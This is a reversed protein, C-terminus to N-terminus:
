GFSVYKYPRNDLLTPHWGEVREDLLYTRTYWYIPVVPLEELLITEAQRLLQLRKEPDSAQAEQILSDYTSNSWGTDNNGNGTTFIELFTMAHPYDGIWGARSIDYDLNSQSDLYVKWEQNYIGVDIGLNQRWMAQIAEAVKRHAESTNILIESKPFGRGGPYGAEALLQRAREPNFRVRDLPPYDDLGNPTFGTAPAQGGQTVRDVLLQRDVALNLAERVRPDDFPKRTVNLRFFYSGLYPDIRLQEPMTKRFSPIRDPSVTSTVHLRGARFATEESNVNEIPFFHIQNLKVRDADWYQPNKETRIIQNTVWEKLTFPGNGVYNEVTSWRNQRETMGGFQEVVRPNVPFFSYHKLMSLFHPTSGTLKVELTRDDIAKVGVQDFDDIKGENFAQANEIVYLMEAYQSGLAPSLIREWSYVFDGATVPEGNTWRATDRLKFRWTSFDENHEWSEAVGPEPEGADTPHYAILGEMLASIIRNEPVGTVLHPDLSMPEAGNGILLIGEKAAVDVRRDGGGCAVMAIGLLGIWFM